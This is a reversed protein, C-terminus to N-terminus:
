QNHIWKGEKTSREIAEVLNLVKLGEDGSCLSSNEPDPSLLATLQHSYTDEVTVSLDTKNGNELITNKIFDCHLSTRDTNVVMQRRSNKDLYNLELTVYGGSKLEILICALDESDIELSSRHGSLAVLKSWDGFMWMLLDLEHSLDRLVGGGEEKKSSYSERYDRQPRWGPLYQGVYMQCSLLPSKACVDRLKQSLPHFRLNYATFVQSDLSVDQFDKSSAGLPKEILIRGRFGLNRLEQVTDPHASTSTAVVVAEPKYDELMQGVSLFSPSHSQARSSVVAVDHGLFELHKLHKLGISGM